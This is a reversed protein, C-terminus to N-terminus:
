WLCLDSSPRFAALWVELLPIELDEKHLDFGYDKFPLTIPWTYGSRKNAVEFRGPPLQSKVSSAM